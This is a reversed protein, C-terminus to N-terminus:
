NFDIKIRIMEMCSAVGSLQTLSRGGASYSMGKKPVIAQIVLSDHHETSGGKGSTHVKPGQPALAQPLHAGSPKRCPLSWVCVCVCVCVCVHVAM